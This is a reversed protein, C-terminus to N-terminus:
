ATHKKDMPTPKMVALTAGTPDQLVAYRGIGPIDEPSVTIRASFKTAREVAADPNDVDVYPLWYPSMGKQLEATVGGRDVGAQSLIHYTGDPGEMPRHSFGLVKEYFTLAKVPDITHLENWFFQGARVPLDPPDGKAIKLICLEAGQPDALRASRGVSPIEYPAEIVKGGNKTAAEATADVDKVSVYSIWHASRIANKPPAYGGIMTDATDGIQIMDYTSNGMPFPVTKWLLVAAYFAQAKKADPTVLEFWVFKGPLQKHAAM